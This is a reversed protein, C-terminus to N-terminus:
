SPQKWFLVPSAIGTLEHIFCRHHNVRGLGLCLDGHAQYVVLLQDSAPCTQAPYWGHRELRAWSSSLGHIAALEGLEILDMPIEGTPTPVTHRSIWYLWLLILVGAILLTTGILTPTNEIDM